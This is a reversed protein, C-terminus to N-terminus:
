SGGRGPGRWAQRAWRLGDRVLLTAGAGALVLIALLPWIVSLVAVVLLLTGAAAAVAAPRHRGPGRHPLPGAGRGAPPVPFQDTVSAASM